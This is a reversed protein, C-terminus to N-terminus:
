GLLAEVADALISDKKHGASKLEGVGLRIYRGLHLSEGIEALTSKRVLRARIRTLTGEDSNPLAQFLWESIILSLVSDGLFELRENNHGIRISRHTVAIQFRDKSLWRDPRSWDKSAGVNM